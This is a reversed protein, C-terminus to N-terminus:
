GLVDLIARACDAKADEPGELNITKQDLDVDVIRCGYKDVVNKVITLVQADSLETM